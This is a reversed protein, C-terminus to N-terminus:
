WKLYYFAMAYLYIFIMSLFDSALGWFGTERYKNKLKKAMWSKLTLSLYLSSFFGMLALYVQSWFAKKDGAQPRLSPDKTSQMSKVKDKKAIAPRELERPRPESKKEAPRDLLQRDREGRQVKERLRIGKTDPIKYRSTPTIKGSPQWQILGKVDVQDGVLFTEGALTKNWDLDFESRQISTKFAMFLNPYKWTDEIPRSFKIEVPITRKIDKIRMQGQITQWEGYKIELPGKFNFIMEPHKNHDFFDKQRLHDDRVNNGTHISNTKFVIEGHKITEAELLINGKFRLVRGSVKAVQIFSVQFHVESHDINVSWVKSGDVPKLSYAKNLVPLSLLICLFLRNISVKSKM